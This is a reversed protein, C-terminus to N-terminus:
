VRTPNPPPPAPLQEFANVTEFGEIARDFAREVGADIETRIAALEGPTLVQQQEFRVLPDCAPWRECEELPRGAGWDSVVGVHAVYRFTVAELLFPGQGARLRAVVDAAMAAVEMVDNGDVRVSEVGFAAGKAMLDLHAQRAAQPTLTSYGNNEVLFLVPLRLVAALNLSEWFSGEEIGGDGTYAISIRGSGDRKHALAAGVAIPVGGGLVATAGLMGVDPASLHMSGGVGSSCGSPLSYFEDIMAQLDGGKALYLAHSRHTGVVTDSADVTSMVGVSAAEQGISLHVAMRIRRSGYEEILQEEVRRIRYMREYLLSPNM